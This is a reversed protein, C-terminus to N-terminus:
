KEPIFQGTVDLHRLRANSARLQELEDLLHLLAIDAQMSDTSKQASAPPVLTIARKLLKDDLEDFLAKIAANTGITSPPIQLLRCVNRKASVGRSNLPVKHLPTMKIWNRLRKANEVGITQSPPFNYSSM